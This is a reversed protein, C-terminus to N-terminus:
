PAKNMGAAEESARSKNIMGVLHGRHFFCEMEPIELSRFAVPALQNRLIRPKAITGFVRYERGEIVVLDNLRLKFRKLDSRNAQSGTLVKIGGNM